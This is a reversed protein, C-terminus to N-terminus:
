PATRPRRASRARRRRGARPRRRSSCSATKRAGGSLPACAGIVDRPSPGSETGGGQLLPWSPGRAMGKCGMGKSDAADTPSSNAESWERARACRSGGGEGQTPRHGRGAARTACAGGGCMLGPVVNDNRQSGCTGVGRTPSSRNRPTEFCDPQDGPRVCAFALMPWMNSGKQQWMGYMLGSCLGSLGGAAWAPARSRRQREWVALKM